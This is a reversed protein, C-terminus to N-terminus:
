LKMGLSIRHLEGIKGYSNFSYDIQYEQFLFGGGLSFGALGASTGLKLDKRQENSYGLRLQVSESMLFEAGFTFSGFRDAFSGSSENLRHFDLNLLVPLHEPCKTIGIKVDLPLSERIGAYTGLQRGINLVSAGLTIHESPIQYLAGLDFALGSSRYEAISSYIFKGNVGVTTQDDISTAIGAILALERAGFTGLINSSADTQTFTGYDIFTVGFGINGIGDANEAFSVNGANVDLLHKLYGVSAKPSSITALAAPNYFVVNPDDMMSVFSGNLGAARASVDTRLFNFTSGQGLLIPAALIVIATLLAIIRM